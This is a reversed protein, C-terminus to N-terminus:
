KRALWGLSDMDKIFKQIVQRRAAYAPYLLKSFRTELGKIYYEKRIPSCVPMDRYLDPLDEIFATIRGMSDGIKPVNRVLSSLLGQIGTNLLAKASLRRGNHSYPTRCGALRDNLHPEKLYGTLFKDPVTGSFAGGNGYVPALRYTWSEEDVLIGWDTGDRMDNDVLIDVVVMDWFRDFAGDVKLIVPNNGLNLMQGYLDVPVGSIDAPYGLLEEMERCAGNGLMEMDMLRTAPTKCFDGCAVVIRGGRMGLLTEQVDFGLIGYIHSAIYESLPSATYGPDGAAGFHRSLGPYKVIYPKGKYLIGDKYCSRGGYSGHRVSYPCQSFDIINHM